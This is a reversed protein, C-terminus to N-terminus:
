FPKFQRLAGQLTIRADEHSGRSTSEIGKRIRARTKERSDMKNYGPILVSLSSGASYRWDDLPPHRDPNKWFMGRIEIGKPLIGTEVWELYIENLVKKTISVGKPVRVKFSFQVSLADPNKSM